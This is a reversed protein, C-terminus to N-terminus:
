TVVVSNEEGFPNRIAGDAEPENIWRVGDVLYRFQYERGPELSVTTRWDGSKHKKLADGTQWGNFDGLVYAERQAADSPLAFTVKVTNEKRFRRKKLM